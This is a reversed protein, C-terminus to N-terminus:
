GPIAGVVTPFPMTVPMNLMPMALNLASNGVTSVKLKDLTKEILANLGFKKEASIPHISM